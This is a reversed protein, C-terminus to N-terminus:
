LNLFLSSVGAPWDPKWVVSYPVADVGYEKCNSCQLDEGLDKCSIVGHFGDQFSSLLRNICMKSETLYKVVLGGKFDTLCTLHVPVFPKWETFIHANCIKMSPDRGGRGAAQIIDNIDEFLELQYTAIVNPYDVGFIIAKNGVLFPSGNGAVWDQFVMKRDSDIVSGHIFKCRLKEAIKECLYRTHTFVLVRDYPELKSPLTGSIYERMYNVKDEFSGPKSYRYIQWKINTRITPTRHNYIHYSLGSDLGTARWIAKEFGFPCTATMLYLKSDQNQQLFAGCYRFVRRWSSDAVYCSAEDLVIYKVRSRFRKLWQTFAPTIISEVATTLVFPHAASALNEREEKNWHRHHVGANTLSQQIQPYLARYPTAFVMIDGSKMAKAAMLVPLTKGAGTGAICLVHPTERTLLQYSEQQHKSKWSAKPDKLVKQLLKITEPKCKDIFSLSSNPPELAALYFNKWNEDLIDVIGQQLLKKLYEMEAINRQARKSSSLISLPFSSQQAQYLAQPDLHSSTTSILSTSTQDPDSLISNLDLIVDQENQEMEEPDQSALFDNSQDRKQSRFARKARIEQLQQVLQAEQRSEENEEENETDENDEDTSAYPTIPPDEENSGL